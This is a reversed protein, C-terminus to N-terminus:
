QIRKKGHRRHRADIQRSGFVASEEHVVDNVVGARKLSRLVLIAHGEDDDVLLVVLPLVRM